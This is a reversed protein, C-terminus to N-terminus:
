GLSIACYPPQLSIDVVDPDENFTYRPPLHVGLRRYSRLARPLPHMIRVEEAGLNIGYFVFAQVLCDTVKGGLPHSKDPNGELAHIRAFRRAPSPHGAALGCLVDGHWLSVDLRAVKHRIRARQEYWDFSDRNVDPHWTQHWATLAAQDISGMRIEPVGLKTRLSEAAVEYTALRMNEHHQVSVYDRVRNFLGRAVRFIVFRAPTWVLICGQFWGASPKECLFAAM